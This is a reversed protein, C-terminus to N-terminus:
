NDILILLNFYNSKILKRYTPYLWFYYKIMYLFAYIEIQQTKDVIRMELIKTKYYEIAGHAFFSTM